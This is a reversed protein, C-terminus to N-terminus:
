TCRKGTSIRPTKNFQKYVELAEAETQAAVSKNEPIDMSTCSGM